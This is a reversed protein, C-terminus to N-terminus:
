HLHFRAGPSRWWPLVEVRLFGCQVMPDLRALSDALQLTPTNYVFIGGLAGETNFTKEDNIFGEFYYGQELMSNHHKERLALMSSDIVTESLSRNPAGTFLAMFYKQLVVSDGSQPNVYVLAEFGKSRLSDARTAASLGHTTELDGCSLFLIFLILLILREM